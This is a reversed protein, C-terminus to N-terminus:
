AIAHAWRELVQRTAPDADRVLRFLFDLMRVQVQAQTSDGMRGHISGQEWLNEVASVGCFPAYASDVWGPQGDLTSALALARVTPHSVLDHYGERAVAGLLFTDDGLLGTLRGGESSYVRGDVDYALQGLGDPGPSRPEAAPGDDLGLIRRLFTAATIELVSVGGRGADVLTSVTTEWAGVWADLSAPAAADGWMATDLATARCLQITHCGARVHEAVMVAAHAVNRASLTIVGRVALRPALAELRRLAATRDDASRTAPGDISARLEVGTDALAAVTEDDVGSLGSSLSIRLEKLSLKNKRRAYDIVHRVLPFALLPEGGVLDLDLTTSTTMFATDCVREATEPRLDEVPLALETALPLVTRRTIALAHRSPGTRLWARRSRLRGALADQDLGDRLFGRSLLEPWEAASPKMTGEVLGRFAGASLWTWDGADNTLLVQGDLERFRFPGAIKSSVKRIEAALM